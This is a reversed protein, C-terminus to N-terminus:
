GRTRDRLDSFLTNYSPAGVDTLVGSIMLTSPPPFVGGVSLRHTQACQDLGCVGQLHKLGGNSDQFGNRTGREPHASNRSRTVQRREYGARAVQWGVGPGMELKMLKVEFKMGCKIEDTRADSVRRFPPMM